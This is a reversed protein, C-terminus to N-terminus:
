NQLLSHYSKERNKQSYKDIIDKLTELKSDKETIDRQNTFLQSSSSLSQVDGATNGGIQIPDTFKEFIYNEVTCTKVEDSYITGECDGVYNVCIAYFNLSDDTLKEIFLDHSFGATSCEDITEIRDQISRETVTYHFKDLNVPTGESSLDRVTAVDKFIQVAFDSEDIDPCIEDNCLIYEGSDPAPPFAIVFDEDDFDFVVRTGECIFDNPTDTVNNCIFLKKEVNVIPANKNKNNNNNNKYPDYEQNYYDNEEYEPYFEQAMAISNQLATAPFFIAAIGFLLFISFIKIKKDSM